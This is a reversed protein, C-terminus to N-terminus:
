IEKKVERIIDLVYPKIASLMPHHKNELMVESMLKLGVAFRAASQPDLQHKDQVLEVIHFIDDHNPADFVLSPVDMKQGHKDTIYDICVRYQHQKM